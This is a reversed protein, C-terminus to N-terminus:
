NTVFNNFVVREGEATHAYGNFQILKGGLIKKAFFSKLGGYEDLVTYNNYITDIEVTLPKRNEFYITVKRAYQIGRLEEVSIIEQRVPKRLHLQSDIYEIGYGVLKSTEKPQFATLMFGNQADGTKIRYGNEYVQFATNTMYIHDMYATGSLNKLTDNNIVLTGEVVGHPLPFTLGAEVNNGLPLHGKNWLLSSTTSQIEFDASIEYGDKKAKFVLKHGESFDGKAFIEQEPHLKLMNNAADYEFENNEYKKRVVITKNDKWSTQFKVDANRKQHSGFESITFAYVIQYGNNLYLHYTWLESYYDSEIERPKMTEHVSSVLSDAPHQAITIGYQQTIPSLVLLLVIFTIQFRM